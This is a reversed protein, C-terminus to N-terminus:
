LSSQLSPAKNLFGNRRFCLIFAITNLKTELMGTTSSINTLGYSYRLEPSIIFKPFVREVGIGLDLALTSKSLQSVPMSSSVIPMKYSPGFSLFPRIRSEVLKYTLHVSFEVTPPLEYEKNTNDTKFVRMKNDYFVLDSSANMTFHRSVPMDMLVGLRFGSGNTSTVKEVDSPKKSSIAFSSLNEGFDIGFVPHMPWNKTQSYGQIVILFASGLFISKKM